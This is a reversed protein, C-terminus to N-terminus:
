RKNVCVSQVKKKVANWCCAFAVSVGFIIVPGANAYITSIVPLAGGCVHIIDAVIAILIPHVIYVTTATRKALHAASRLLPKESIRRSNLFLVFVAYALFPTAIFCDVNYEMGRSRLFMNEAVSIGAALVAMLMLPKQGPTHQKERLADGLLFFPLGCFLFNRTLVLSFKVGFVIISYNGLVINVALLVPILKYLKKRDSFRDVVLVIVLVYLLAGLYWLHESFSPENFCIFRVWEKVSLLSSFGNAVPQKAQVCRLIEWGMYLLNSYVVMAATKRIQVFERGKEKVSAYFYGTIMFFVPVAFRTLPSLIHKGAYAVHICVVMFACLFKAFDLGDYRKQQM